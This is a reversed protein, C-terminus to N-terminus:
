MEVRFHAIHVGQRVRLLDDLLGDAPAMGGNGDRIVAYGLGERVGPMGGPVLDLDEVAHLAVEDVVHVIADGNVAPSVAAQVILEDAEINFGGAQLHVPLGDRLDARHHQFVALDAFPELGKYVGVAAQRRLDDTEGADRIFHQLVGGLQLIGQRFKQFEDVTPGQSGM